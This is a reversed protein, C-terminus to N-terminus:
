RTQYQAASECDPKPSLLLLNGAHAHVVVLGAWVYPDLMGLPALVGGNVLDVGPLEGFLSREARRLLVQWPEPLQACDDQPQHGDVLDACHTALWVAKSLLRTVSWGSQYARSQFPSKRGVGHHSQSSMM